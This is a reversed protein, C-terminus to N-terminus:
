SASADFHEAALCGPPSADAELVEDSTSMVEDRKMTMAASM